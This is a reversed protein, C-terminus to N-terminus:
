TYPEYQDQAEYETKSLYKICIYIFSTSWNEDRVLKEVRIQTRLVEMGYSNLKRHAKLVGKNHETLM